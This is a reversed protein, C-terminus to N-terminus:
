TGVELRKGQQLATLRAANEVIPRIILQDVKAKEGYFGDFRDMVIRVGPEWTSVTFPGTCVPKQGFADNGAAELATPSIVAAYGTSAYVAFAPNPAKLTLHINLPDVVESADGFRGSEVKEQIMAELQPPLTLTVTM